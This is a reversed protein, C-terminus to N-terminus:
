AALGSGVVFPFGAGGLYSRRLYNAAGPTCGAQSDWDQPLARTGAAGPTEKKV